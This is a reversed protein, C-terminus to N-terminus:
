HFTYTTITIAFFSLDSNRPRFFDSSAASFSVSEVVLGAPPTESVITTSPLGVDQREVVFEIAIGSGIPLTIAFATDPRRGIRRM